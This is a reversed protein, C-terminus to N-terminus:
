RVRPPAVDAGLAVGFAYGAKHHGARGRRGSAWGDLEALLGLKAIVQEQGSAAALPMGFAIAAVGALLLRAISVM